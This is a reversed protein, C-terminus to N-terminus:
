HSVYCLAYLQLSCPEHQPAWFNALANKSSVAQAQKLYYEVCSNKWWCCCWCYMRFQFDNWMLLHLIGLEKHRGKQVFRCIWLKCRSSVRSKSDSKTYCFLTASLLTLFTSKTLNQNLSDLKWGAAFFQSKVTEPPGFLTIFVRNKNSIVKNM